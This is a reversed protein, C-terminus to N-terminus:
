FVGGPVLFQVISYMGAFLVIGIITNRMMDKAKQVQEQSDRASAYLIGAYVLAGVALVGVSIAMINIVIRLLGMLGSQQIDGGGSENCDIIATEVGGCDAAAAPHTFWTSAGLSLAMATMVFLSQFSLKAYLKNIKM